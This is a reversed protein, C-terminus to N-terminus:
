MGQAVRHQWVFLLAIECVNREIGDSSAYVATRLAPQERTVCYPSAQCLFPSTRLRAAVVPAFVSQPQQCAAMFSCHHIAAFLGNGVRQFTGQHLLRCRRSRLFNGRRAVGSAGGGQAKDVPLGRHCVRPFVSRRFEPRQRGSWPM